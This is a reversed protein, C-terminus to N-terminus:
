RWSFTRLGVVVVGAGGWRVDTRLVPSFPLVASDWPSFGGGEGRRCAMDRSACRHAGRGYPVDKFACSHMRRDRCASLLGAWLWGMCLRARLRGGICLGSEGFMGRHVAGSQAGICLEGFTGRYVAGHHFCGEHMATCALGTAGARCPAAWIPIASPRPSAWDGRDPM